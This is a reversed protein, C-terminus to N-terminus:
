QAVGGPAGGPTGAFDFSLHLILKGEAVEARVDKVNAKLTGNASQVPVALALQQARLIELPNIRQNISRQVLLTAIGGVAAPAGELSVGEVNIQGYVTQRERDFRLDISAQAWGQFRVCAGFINKSGDFALPATIKGGTFRVGTKVNSGETKIVVKDPCDGQFAAPVMAWTSADSPDREMMALELPFSPQGLDRFVTGLLPDFFKEDLTVVATGPPDGGAEPARVPEGPLSKPKAAGVLFLVLLAGLVLGVVGTIVALLYKM